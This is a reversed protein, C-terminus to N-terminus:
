VELQAIQSKYQLSADEGESQLSEREQEHSKSMQVILNRLDEIVLQHQHHTQKAQHLQHNFEKQLLSVKDASDKVINGLQIKHKEQLDVISRQLKSNKDHFIINQRKVAAIEKEARSLSAKSSKIEDMADSNKAQLDYYSTCMTVTPKLSIEQINGKRAQDVIQNSDMRWHAWKGWMACAPVYHMVDNKSCFFCKDPKFSPLVSLISQPSTSEPVILTTVKQPTKPSSPKNTPSMAANRAALIRPEFGANYESVIKELIPFENTLGDQLQPYLFCTRQLFRVLQQWALVFRSVVGLAIMASAALLTYGVSHASFIIWQASMILSMVWLLLAGICPVVVLMTLRRTTMLLFVTVGACHSFWAWGTAEDVFKFMEPFSAFSGLTFAGWLLVGLFLTTGQVDVMKVRPCNSNPSSNSPENLTRSVALSIRESSLRKRLVFRERSNYESYYSITNFIWVVPACYLFSLVAELKVDSPRLFVAIYFYFGTTIASGLMTNVFSLPTVKPITYFSLGFLVFLVDWQHLVTRQLTYMLLTSIGNCLAVLFMLPEDAKVLDMKVLIHLGIQLVILFLRAPITVHLYIPHHELSDSIAFFLHGIAAPILGRLWLAKKRTHCFAQYSEELQEDQFGLTYKNVCVTTHQM